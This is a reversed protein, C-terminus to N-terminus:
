ISLIHMYFLYSQPSARPKEGQSVMKLSKLKLRPRAISHSDARRSIKATLWVVAQQKTVVTNTNGELPQHKEGEKVYM